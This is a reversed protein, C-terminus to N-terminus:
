YETTIHAFTVDINQPVLDLNTISYAIDGTPVAAGDWGDVIPSLNFELMGLYTVAEFMLGHDGIPDVGVSRAVDADRKATTTYLRIRTPTTTTLKLLRYSKGLAITGTVNTSGAVSGLNVTTTTRTIGINQHVNNLQTSTLTQVSDIKVRDAITTVLTNIIDPDNNLASAIEELTDLVGPASGILDAIKLQVFETTAIRTSNDTTLPTSTTPDGPLNADSAISITHVGESLSINIGTGSSLNTVPLIVDLTTGDSINFQLGYSTEFSAYTCGTLSIPLQINYNFADNM